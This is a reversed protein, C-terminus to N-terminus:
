NEKLIDFGCTVSWTFLVKVAHLIYMIIKVARKHEDM